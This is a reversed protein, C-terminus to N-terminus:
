GNNIKDKSACIYCAQEVISFRIITYGIINSKHVDFAKQKKLENM